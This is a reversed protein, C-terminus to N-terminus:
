SETRLEWEHDIKMKMVDWDVLSCVSQSIQDPIRQPQPSTPGLPPSSSPASFQAEGLKQRLAFVDLAPSERDGKTSGAARDKISRIQNCKTTLGAVSQQLGSILKDKMWVQDNLTAIQQEHFM